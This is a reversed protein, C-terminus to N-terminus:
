ASSARITHRHEIVPYLGKLYFFRWLYQIDYFNNGRGYTLAHGRGKRDAMLELDFPAAPNYMFSVSQLTHLHRKKSQGRVLAGYLTTEFRHVDGYAKASPYWGTHKTKFRGSSQVIPPRGQRV